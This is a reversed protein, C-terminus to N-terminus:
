YSSNILKKMVYERYKDNIHAIMLPNKKVTALCIKKTKKKAHGYAHANQEIAAICIEETQKKVAMLMFGNQKVAELCIENTQNKVCMLANGDCKVAELCLEDDQENVFLLARGAQKVAILCLERDKERIYELANGDIKIATLCLDRDQNKVYKLLEVNKKIAALCIEKTQEQFYFDCLPDLKKALKIMDETMYIEPVGTINIFENELMDYYNQHMLEHEINDRHKEDIHTYIDNGNHIELCIWCFDTKCLSCTMHSCGSDKEITVHCEPCEKHTKPSCDNCILRYQYETQTVCSEQIYQKFEKCSSCLIYSWEKDNIIKEHDPNKVKKCQPCCLKGKTIIRGLEINNWIKICKEHAQHSCICTNILNDPELCINCSM